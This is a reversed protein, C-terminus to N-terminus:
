TAATAAVTAVAAGNSRRHKRLFTPGLNSEFTSDKKVGWLVKEV